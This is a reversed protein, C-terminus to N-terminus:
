TRRTPERMSFASLSRRMRKQRLTGLGLFLFATGFLFDGVVRHRKKYILLM